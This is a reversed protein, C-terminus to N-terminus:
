GNIVLTFSFHVSVVEVRPAASFSQRYVFLLLIIKVLQNPWTSLALNIDKHFDNTLKM